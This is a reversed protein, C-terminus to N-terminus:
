LLPTSATWLGEYSDLKMKGSDADMRQVAGSSRVAFDKISQTLIYVADFDVIILRDHLSRAPTLRAELTTGFQKIWSEVAPTLDPKVAGKDALLRKSVGDACLTVVNTVAQGNMYPDIVFIDKAAGRVIDSLVLHFDFAAGIAVYGGSVANSANMEAIAFANHALQMIKEVASYATATPLHEVATNLKVIEVIMRLEKLCAHLQALWRNDDNNVLRPAAVFHPSVALLQKLMVYCRDYDPELKM